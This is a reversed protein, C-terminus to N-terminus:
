SRVAVEQQMMEGTLGQRESRATLRRIQVRLVTRGTIRQSSNNERLIYDFCAQM